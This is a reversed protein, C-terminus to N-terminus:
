GGNQCHVRDVRNHVRGVMRVGSGTWGIMCQCQCQVRDVWDNVRGVMRASSGTCGIM